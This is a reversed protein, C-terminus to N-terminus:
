NQPMLKKLKEMQLDIILQQRVLESIDQVIVIIYNDKKFPFYRVNYRLHKLEKKSDSTYFERDLRQNYITKKDSYARIGDKRLQCNKCKSTEGCEKEEEVTFACGIANGCRKYLLDEDPKNSFITKIPNNFAQLELKKDLLLVCSTMNELVINMFDSSGHLFDFSTNESTILNAM